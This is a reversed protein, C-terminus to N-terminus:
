ATGKIFKHYRGIAGKLTPATNYVRHTNTVYTVKGDDDVSKWVATVKKVNKGTNPDISSAYHWVADAKFVEKREEDTLPKKNKELKEYDSKSEILPDLGSLERLRNIGENKSKKMNQFIHNVLKWFSDSDEDKKPYQKKVIAKAENWMDEEGPKVLGKPM